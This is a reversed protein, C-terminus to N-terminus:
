PAHEMTVPGYPPPYNVTSPDTLCLVRGTLDRPYCLEHREDGHRDWWRISFLGDAIRTVELKDAPL